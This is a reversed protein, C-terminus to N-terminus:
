KTYNQTPHENQSYGAIQAKMRSSNYTKTQSKSHNIELKNKNRNINTGNNLIITVM